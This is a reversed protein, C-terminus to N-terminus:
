ILTRFHSIHRTPTTLTERLPFPAPSPAPHSSPIPQPSPCVSHTRSHHHPIAIIVIISFPLLLPNFFLIFLSIPYHPVESRRDFRFRSRLSSIRESVLQRLAPIPLIALPNFELGFLKRIPIWLIVGTKTECWLCNVLPFSLSLFKILRHM